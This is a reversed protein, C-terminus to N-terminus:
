LLTIVPVTGDVQVKPDLLMNAVETAFEVPVFDAAEPLKLLKYVVDEVANVPAADLACKFLTGDPEEDLAFEVLAEDRAFESVDQVAM